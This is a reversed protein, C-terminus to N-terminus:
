VFSFLIVSLLDVKILCAIKGEIKDTIRQVAFYILNDFFIHDAPGSLLSIM